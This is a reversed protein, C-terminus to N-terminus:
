ISRVADKAKPGEEKAIARKAVGEKCIKIERDTYGVVKLVEEIKFDYGENEDEIAVYRAKEKNADEKEVEAEKSEARITTIDHAKTAEESPIEERDACKDLTDVKLDGLNLGQVKSVATNLKHINADEMGPQRAKVRQEKDKEATAEPDSNDASKHSSKKIEEWFDEGWDMRSTYEAENIEQIYPDKISLEAVNPREVNLEEIGAQEGNIGDAQAKHMEVEEGTRRESKLGGIKVDVDQPGGCKAHEGSEEERHVDKKIVVEPNEYEEGGAVAEQFWDLVIKYGKPLM